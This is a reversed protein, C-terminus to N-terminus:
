VAACQADRKQLYKLLLTYAGNVEAAAKHGGPNIDPHTKKICKRWATVLADKSLTDLALTLGSASSLLHCARGEATVPAV